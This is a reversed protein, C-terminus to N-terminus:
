QTRGLGDRPAGLKSATGQFGGQGTRWSLCSTPALVFSSPSHRHGSPCRESYRATGRGVFIGGPSPSDRRPCARGQSVPSPLGEGAFGALAPLCVVAVRSPPRGKSGRGQGASDQTTPPVCDWPISRQQRKRPPTVALGEPAACHRCGPSATELTSAAPSQKRGQVGKGGPPDEDTSPSRARLSRESTAIVSKPTRGNQTASHGHVFECHRRSRFEVPAYIALCSRLRPTGPLLKSWSSGRKSKLYLASACRPLVRLIAKCHTSAVITGAASAANTM